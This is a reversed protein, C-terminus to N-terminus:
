GTKKVPERMPGEKTPRLLQLLAPPVQKPKTRLATTLRSSLEYNYKTDWDNPAAALAQKFADKARSIWELRAEAKDAQESKAFLACGVWFHPAADPPATEAAEIVGDYDGARYLLALQNHAARSFDRPLIQQAVPMDTFRTASVQYGALAAASDGTDAATQAQLLPTSWRAYGLLAIGALLAAISVLVISSRVRPLM